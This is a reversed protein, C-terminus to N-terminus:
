CPRRYLLSSLLAASYVRPTTVSGRPVIAFFETSDETWRWAPTPPLRFRGIAVAPMYIIAFALQTAPDTPRLQTPWAVPQIRRHPRANGLIWRQLQVLPSCPLLGVCAARLRRGAKPPTVRAHVPAPGPHVLLTGVTFIHACCAKGVEARVNSNLLSRRRLRRFIGASTGHGRHRHLRTSIVVEDIPGPLPSRYPAMVLRHALPDVPLHRLRLATKRRHRPLHVGRVPRRDTSSASRLAPTTRATSPARSRTRDGSRMIAVGWSWAM